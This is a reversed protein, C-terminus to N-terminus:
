RGITEFSSCGVGVGDGVTVGSGVEVGSGEMNVPEHTPVVDPERGMESVTECSEVCTVNKASSASCLLSKQWVVNTTVDLVGVAIMLLSNEPRTLLPTLLNDKLPRNLEGVVAEPVNSKYLHGESQPQVELM